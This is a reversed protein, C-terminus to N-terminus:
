SFVFCSLKNAETRLWPKKPKTIMVGKVHELRKVVFKTVQL